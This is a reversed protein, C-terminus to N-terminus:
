GLLGIQAKTVDSYIGSDLQYRDGEAVNIAKTCWAFLTRLSACTEPNSLVKPIDLIALIKGGTDVEDFDARLAKLEHKPHPITEVDGVFDTLATGLTANVASADAFYYAELMNVLFHVSARHKQALLINDLTARYRDYVQHAVPARDRELDDVVIVFHYGDANLARRAPYGFDEMDKHPIQKGTGVMRLLKKEATIPSRQGIRRLVKFSCHGGAALSRFLLPLFSEEGRGTVILGFRCFRWSSADSSDAM